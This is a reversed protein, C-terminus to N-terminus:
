QFAKYRHFPKNLAHDHNGPCGLFNLVGHGNKAFFKSPFCQLNGGPYKKIHIYYQPWVVESSKMYKAEDASIFASALIAAAVLVLAIFQNYKQFM